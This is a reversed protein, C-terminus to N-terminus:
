PDRLLGRLFIKLVGENAIGLRRTEVGQRDILFTTPLSMVRYDRAHQGTTDVGLPYTVGVEEAFARANEERDSNVAVGLFVVDQDQYEQWIAEFSPMEKRCPICWSAWFNLVVVKGRLDALRLSGGDLLTLDLPPAPSGSGLDVSRGSTSIRPSLIAVPQQATASQTSAPEDM